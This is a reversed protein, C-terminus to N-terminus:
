PKVEQGKAVEETYEIGRETIRLPAEREPLFPSAVISAVRLNSRGKRLYIRTHSRHGVIHGGIPVPQSGAYADPTSSVQNTVAAVANFARALRLLKYMHKNLQQQRPALMERGIYESRFNGTLSDIVILRIGNEKIVEDANELLIMQHNSNIAEAFVIRKLVDKPDLGLRPAIQIIRDPRFVQETDIILAGGNLGGKEEPLQVALCLQHCLQSKGSGYEGYFETISQTELGGDLIADLSSCGTTMKKMGKRREALEEATIFKLAITNRATEIIKIATAEGIGSATVEGVTATALGEVTHLGVSRLQKVIAPGLGPVDELTKYKTQLYESTVM